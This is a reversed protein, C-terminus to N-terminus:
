DLAHRHPPLGVTARAPPMSWATSACSRSTARSSRSASPSPRQLADVYKPGDALTYLILLRKADALGSCFDAHLHNIEAELNKNM